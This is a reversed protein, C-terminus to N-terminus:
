WRGNAFPQLQQWSIKIDGRVPHDKTKDRYNDNDIRLTRQKPHRPFPNQHGQSLANRVLVLVYELIEAFEHGLATEWLGVISNIYM